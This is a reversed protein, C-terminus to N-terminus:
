SPRRRLRQLESQIRKVDESRDLRSYISSLFALIQPDNNTMDLMKELYEAAKELEGHRELFVAAAYWLGTAEPAIQLANELFRMAMTMNDSDLDVLRAMFAVCTASLGLDAEFAQQLEDRSIAWQNEFAGRIALILHNLGLDSGSALEISLKQSLEDSEKNAVLRALLDLLTSSQSDVRAAISLAQDSKMQRENSPFVHQCEIFRLCYDSCLGRFAYQDSAAMAPLKTAILSQSEQLSGQRLLCSFFAALGEPSQQSSPPESWYKQSAVIAAQIAQEPSLADLAEALISQEIMSPTEIKSLLEVAEGIWRVRDERNVQEDLAYSQLIRLQGLRVLGTRNSPAKQLIDLAAKAHRKIEQSNRLPQRLARALEWSKAILAEENDEKSLREMTDQALLNDAVAKKRLTEAQVQDGNRTAQDSMTACLQASAEAVLALKLNLRSVDPTVEILRRLFLSADNLAQRRASIKESGESEMWNTLDVANGQADILEAKLLAQRCKEQYVGVM